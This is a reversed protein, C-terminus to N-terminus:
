QLGSRVLGAPRLSLTSMPDVVQSVREFLDLPM